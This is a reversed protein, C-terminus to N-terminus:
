NKKKYSSQLIAPKALQMHHSKTMAQNVPWVHVCQIDQCNKDYCLTSQCNKDDYMSLDHATCEWKSTEDQEEYVVYQNVQYENSPFAIHSQEKGSYMNQSQQLVQMNRQSRNKRPHDANSSILSTHSPIFDLNNCPQVLSLELTTACSLVVSSEHSTVHFTVEKLYQTHVVLLTYSAIVKIKDITCTGIQLKSSPALKKCDQDKHVLQYVSVPIINVDEYTDSRARLYM